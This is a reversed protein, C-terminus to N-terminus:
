SVSQAPGILNMDWGGLNHAAAYVVPEIEVWEGPWELMANLVPAPLSNAAEGMKLLEVEDGRCGTVEVGGTEPVWRYM